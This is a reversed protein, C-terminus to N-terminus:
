STRPCFFYIRETTFPSALAYSYTLVRKPFLSHLYPVWKYAGIFDTTSGSTKIEGGDYLTAKRQAANVGLDGNEFWWDLIGGTVITTYEIQGNKAMTQIAKANRIKSALITSGAVARSHPHMVDLTYESPMFRRIGAVIAASILLPDIYDSALGNITSVLIDHGQLAKTLAVQDEYSEIPIVSVIPSISLNESSDPRTLVTIKSISPITLLHSLVRKGLYGTAGAIAIRHFTM